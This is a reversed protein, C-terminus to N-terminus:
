SGAELQFSSFASLQYSSGMFIATQTLCTTV